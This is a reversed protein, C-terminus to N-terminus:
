TRPTYLQWPRYMNGYMTSFKGHM